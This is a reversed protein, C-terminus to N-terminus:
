PKVCRLTALMDDVANMTHLRHHEKVKPALHQFDKHYAYIPAIAYEFDVDAGLYHGGAVGDQEERWKKSLYSYRAESIAQRHTPDQWCRISSYYPTLAVVIGGDVMAEYLEAFFAMFDPVHEVFHSSYCLSVPGVQEKLRKGWGPAFLDLKIEADPHYFDVGTLGAFPKKGCGLDVQACDPHKEKQEDRFAEVLETLTYNRDETFSPM